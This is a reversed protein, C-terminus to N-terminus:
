EKRYLCTPLQPLSGYKQRQHLCYRYNHYHHQVFLSYVHNECHRSSHGNMFHFHHVLNFEFLVLKCAIDLRVLLIIDVWKFVIYIAWIDVALAFVVQVSNDFLLNLTNGVRWVILAMITLLSINLVSHLPVSIESDVSSIATKITNAVYQSIPQSLWFCLWSFILLMSLSLLLCLLWCVLIFHMFYFKLLKILFCCSRKSVTSQLFRM